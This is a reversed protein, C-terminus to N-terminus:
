FDDTYMYFEHNVCVHVNYNDIYCGVSIDNLMRASLQNMYVFFVTPSLIKVKDFVM